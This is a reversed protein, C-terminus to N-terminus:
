PLSLRSVLDIIKIPDLSSALSHTIPVEFALLPLIVLFFACDHIDYSM